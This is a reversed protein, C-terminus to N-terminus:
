KVVIDVWVRSGFATGTANKMQWYGKYEGATAPAQLPVIFTNSNGPDTFDASKSLVIDKGGMQDGTIFVFSYGSNWACTGSNKLGWGKKFTDGATFQTGDNPPTESLYTSNDCGVATSGITSGGTSTTPLAAGSATGVSFPTSLPIVPFTPLPTFTVLPTPSAAQATQTGQDNLQANMTSAAFTFIAGVDTTPVPTSGSGCATLAAAMLIVVVAGTLKNVHM